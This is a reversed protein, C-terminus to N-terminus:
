YLKELVLHSWFLAHVYHKTRFLDQVAKWDKESTSKWYNIHEKKTM